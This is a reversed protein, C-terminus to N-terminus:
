GCAHRITEICMGSVAREAGASILSAYVMHKSLTKVMALASAHDSDHCPTKFIIEQNETDRQRHPCEDDPEYEVHPLSGGEPCYRWLKLMEGAFLPTRVAYACAFRADL